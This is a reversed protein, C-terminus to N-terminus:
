RIAAPALAPFHYRGETDALSARAVGSEENTLSLKAGAVPGGSPDTVIGFLEADGVQALTFVPIAVFAAATLFFCLAQRKQVLM